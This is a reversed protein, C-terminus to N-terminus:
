LTAALEFMADVQADTLGLTAAAGILTADYREWTQAKNIFARDLFTRAPDNAWADYASALGFHDIAKLGQLAAIRRVPTPGPMAPEIASFLEDAGVDKPGNVARWGLSDKRIAYPM